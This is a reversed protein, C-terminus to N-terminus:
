TNDKQIQTTRWLYLRLSALKFCYTLMPIVELEDKLENTVEVNKVRLAANIDEVTLKTRKSHRM